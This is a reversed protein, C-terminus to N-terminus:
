IPRGSEIIQNSQATIAKALPNTLSRLQWNLGLYVLCILTISFLLANFITSMWHTKPLNPQPNKQEQMLLCKNIEGRQKLIIHYLKNSLNILENAGHEEKAFKGTFGYNLTLYLLELLDLHIKPDELTSDVIMFFREAGSTEQHFLQLLNNQQWNNAAGWPTKAITEDLLACLAFRAAFITNARYGFNQARHMFARVEHALDAFFKKRDAPFDFEPLKAAIVFLPTAATILPNVGANPNLIRSRYYSTAGTNIVDPSSDNKINLINTLFNETNM